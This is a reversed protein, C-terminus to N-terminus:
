HTNVYNNLWQIVRKVDNPKYNNFINKVKQIWNEVICNIDDVNDNPFNQKIIFKTYELSFMIIGFSQASAMVDNLSIDQVMKISFNNVSQNFVDIFTNNNKVIKLKKNLDFLFLNLFDFIGLIDINFDVGELITYILKNLDDYSLEDEDDWKELCRLEFNQTNFNQNIIYFCCLTYLNLKTKSFSKDHKSLLFRACSEKSNNKSFNLLFSDFLSVTKFYLKGKINYPKLVELLYKFSYKRLEKTIGFKLLVEENIPVLNENNSEKEFYKTLLEGSYTYFVKYISNNYYNFEDKEKHNEKLTNKSNQIKQTQINRAETQLNQKIDQFKKSSNQQKVIKFHKRGKTKKQNQARKKTM